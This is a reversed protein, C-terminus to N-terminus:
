DPLQNPNIGQSRLYAELRKAQEEARKAREETSLYRDSQQDFWGLQEQLENDSMVQCRGIGLGVEPMWYPEGQQL